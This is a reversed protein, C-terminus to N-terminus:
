KCALTPESLMYQSILNISSPIDSNDFCYKSNESCYTGGIVNMCEFVSNLLFTLPMDSVKLSLDSLKDHFAKDKRKFLALEKNVKKVDDCSTIKTLPYFTFEFRRSIISFKISGSLGSIFDAKLLDGSNIWDSYGFASPYSLASIDKNKELTFSNVFQFEIEHKTIRAITKKM